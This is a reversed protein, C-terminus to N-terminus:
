LFMHQYDYSLSRESYLLPVVEISRGDMSDHGILACGIEAEQDTYKGVHKHPAVSVAPRVGDDPQLAKLNYQDVALFRELSYLLIHERWWSSDHHRHTV